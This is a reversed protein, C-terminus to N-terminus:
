LFVGDQQLYIGRQNDQLILIIWLIKYDYSLQDTIIEMFLTRYELEVQLPFDFELMWNAVM